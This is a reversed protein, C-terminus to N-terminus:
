RAGSYSVLHDDLLCLQLIVFEWTGSLGGYWLWGTMLWDEFKWRLVIVRRGDNGRPRFVTTEKGDKAEEVRIREHM